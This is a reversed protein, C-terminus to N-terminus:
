FDFEFISVHGSAHGLVVTNGRVAASTARYDPPLWLLNEMGRAIWQEKVFVGHLLSPQPPVAGALSSTTDVPGRDTELYSGDSSFLLTQIVANVKLTQRAAGTAADWLRVTSDNSASALQSGDPSFTVALVWSSHGELTQRAAGTAADWLRVTWDYSASALQSGDPSFTVALVWSSHGELTQRAAGTAADWLRVTGDDSVSALQSGDPSFAVAEVSRSHGELTQRAAGTAADWLRVTGDDSASALQSGDPSFTVAKVSSSHGEFTQILGSWDQQVKPLRRIWRPMQDEFQKRVISM